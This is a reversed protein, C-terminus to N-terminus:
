NEIGERDWGGLRRGQWYGQQDGGPSKNCNNKHTQWILATTVTIHCCVCTEEVLLVGEHFLLM